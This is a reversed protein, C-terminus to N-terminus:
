GHVQELGLLLCAVMFRTEEENFFKYPLHYRMDGGACYDMVLYLNDRDQFAGKMNVIFPHQVEALLEREMFVSQLSRKAIIRAKSMEKLAYSPLAKSKKNAVKWVRGFGGRGVVYQKEFSTKFLMDDLTQISSLDEQGAEKSKVEQFVCNGM